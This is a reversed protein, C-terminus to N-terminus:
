PTHPHLPVPPTRTGPGGADLREIEDLVQHVVEAVRREDARVTGLWGPHPDIDCALVSWSLPSLRAKRAAARLDDDPGVDLASRILPKLLRVTEPPMPTGGAIRVRRGSIKSRISDTEHATAEDRAQRVTPVFPSMWKFPSMWGTPPVNAALAYLAAATAATVVVLQVISLAHRPLAVLLVGGIVLAASAVNAPRLSRENM